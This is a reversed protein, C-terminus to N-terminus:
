SANKLKHIQENLKLSKKYLLTYKKELDKNLTHTNSPNKEYEQKLVEKELKLTDLEKLTKDIKQTFKIILEAKNM